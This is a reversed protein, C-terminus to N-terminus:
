TGTNEETKTHKHLKLNHKNAQRSNLAENKNEGKIAYSYTAELMFGTPTAELGKLLMLCLLTHYAKDKIKKKIQINIIERAYRNCADSMKM